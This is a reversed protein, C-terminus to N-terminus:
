HAAAYAEAAAGLYYSLGTQQSELMSRHFDDERFFRAQVAFEEATAGLGHNGLFALHSGILGLIQQDDHRIGTQLAKALGDMFAAAEAALENMRATELPNAELLDFGYEKELHESQGQLAEKWEEESNFGRFMDKESMTDGKRSKAISQRLTDIITELRRQRLLLLEEQRELIAARNTEGKLLQGIEELTFDLERYFLIQQLWELEAQGYLRYGAETIGCPLLLGIKHYHHLAKVTVGSLVSVDKVTYLM